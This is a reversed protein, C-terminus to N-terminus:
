WSFSQIHIALIWQSTLSRFELFDQVHKKVKGKLKHKKVNGRKNIKNTIRKIKNNNKKNKMFFIKKM